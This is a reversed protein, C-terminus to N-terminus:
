LQGVIKLDPQQKAIEKLLGIVVGTTLTREHAEALLVCAYSELLLNSIAECFLIGDTLYKLITQPLSCTEFRILYGVERGFLIDMENAVRPAVSM